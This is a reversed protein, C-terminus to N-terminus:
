PNCHLLYEKLGPHCLGDKLENNSAMYRQRLLIQINKGCLYETFKIYKFCIMYFITRM